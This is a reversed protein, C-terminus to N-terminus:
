HFLNLISNLIGGSSEEQQQPQDSEGNGSGGLLSSLLGSAMSAGGGGLLSGLLGGQEQQAQESQSDGGGLLGGLMGLVGGSSGSQSGLVSLLLPSAMSLISKTNDRTVGSAGSIEDVVASEDKGLVHALIKQGDELDVNKLFAGLNSLDVGSHDTVARSLSAAGAEDGANRRMGGLLAPIGTSLVKAADEKNVNLRQCLADLGDGSILAGISNLDFSM